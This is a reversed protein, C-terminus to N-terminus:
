LCKLDHVLKWFFQIILLCMNMFNKFIVIYYNSGDSIKLSSLIIRTELSLVVCM